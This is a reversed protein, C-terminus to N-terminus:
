SRQILGSVRVALREFVESPGLCALTFDAEAAVAILAKDEGVAPGDLVVLEYAGRLKTIAHAFSESALLEAGEASPEGAVVCVLPASAGGSAPGVLLASQLIQPARAEWRLYEGLGPASKLGLLTALRPSALDCELLATRRGAAAGATALALAAGSKGEAGGIILLTRADAVKGL